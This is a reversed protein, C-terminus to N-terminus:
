LPHPLYSKKLFFPPVAAQPLIQTNHSIIDFKNQIASVYYPHRNKRVTCSLLNPLHCLFSLFVM